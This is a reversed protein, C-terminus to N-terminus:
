KNPPLYYGRSQQRVMVAVLIIVIIVLLVIGGAILLNEPSSLVRSAKDTYVTLGALPEETGEEEEKTEEIEATVPLIDM